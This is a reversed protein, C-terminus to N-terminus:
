LTAGTTFDLHEFLWVGNVKTVTGVVKIDAKIVYPTASPDAFHCELYMSGTDGEIDFQTKFEPALSVWYHKFPAAVNTFFDRVGDIGNFATGNFTLSSDDAWLAMMGELDGGYSGAHHFQAVLHDLEAIQTQYHIADLAAVDEATRRSGANARGLLGSSCVALLAVTITAALYLSLRRLVSGSTFPIIFQKMRKKNNANHNINADGCHARM